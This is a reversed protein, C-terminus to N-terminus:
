VSRGRTPTEDIAEETPVEASLFPRLAAGSRNGAHHPSTAVGDIRKVRVLLM